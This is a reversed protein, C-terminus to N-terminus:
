PSARKKAAPEAGAVGCARNKGRHKAEYLARDVKVILDDIGEEALEGYGASVSVTSGSEFVQYCNQVVREALGKCDASGTHPFVVLFEEGGWRIVIDESRIVDKINEVTKKLVIDGAKHGFTDNVKKFDDIDILMVSIHDALLGGGATKSFIDDFKRRNFCQTLNDLYSQEKLVESLQYKGYVSLESTYAIVMGLGIIVPMTMFYLAYHIVTFPM